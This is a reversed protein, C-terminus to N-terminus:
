RGTSGSTHLLAFPRKGDKELTGDFVYQPIKTRDLWYTIDEFQLVQMERKSTILNVLPALAPLDRALLIDHRDCVDLM